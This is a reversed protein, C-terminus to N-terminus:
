NSPNEFQGPIFANDFTRSIEKAKDISGQMGQNADTLVVEAGYSEILAIRQKSMNSPMVIITKYGDLSAIYALGIGTNGSTPEIIVSDKKLLGSEKADKLMQYAVRDKTSGAPNSSEVKAFIEASINYKAPLKFIKKLPTNGVNIM